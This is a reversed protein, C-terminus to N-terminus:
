YGVARGVRELLPERMAYCPLVRLLMGAHVARSAAAVARERVARAQSRWPNCSRPSRSSRGRSTPSTSSWWCTKSRIAPPARRPLPPSSAVVLSSHSNSPSSRPAPEAPPLPPHTHLHPPAAHPHPGALQVDPRVPRGAHAAGVRRRGAAAAARQPGDLRRRAERCAGDRERADRGLSALPTPAPHPHPARLRVTPRPRAAPRHGGSRPPAASCAAPAPTSLLKKVVLEMSEVEATAGQGGAADGM